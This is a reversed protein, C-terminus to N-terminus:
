VSFKKVLRLQHGGMDNILKQTPMLNFQLMYFLLYYSSQAESNKNEWDTDMWKLVMIECKRSYIKPNSPSVGTSLCGLCSLSLDTM